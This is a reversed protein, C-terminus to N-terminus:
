SARRCGPSAARASTWACRWRPPGALHLGPLGPGTRVRAAHHRGDGRLRHLQAV